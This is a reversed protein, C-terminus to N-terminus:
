EKEAVLAAISKYTLQDDSLELLEQHRTITEQILGIHTGEVEIEGTWGLLDTEEICFEIQTDDSQWVSGRNKVITFWPKCAIDGLVERCELISGTFLKRKGELYLSRKCAIDDEIIVEEKTLWIATELRPQSWERIRITQTSPNWDQFIPQFYHDVFAYERICNLQHQDIIRRIKGVDDILFRVEAEYPKLQSLEGM